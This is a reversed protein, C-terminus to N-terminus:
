VDIKDQPAQLPENQNASHVAQHALYLFLPKDDDHDM